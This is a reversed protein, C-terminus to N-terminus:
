NFVGLYFDLIEIEYLWVLWASISLFPGFRIATKRVAKGQWFLIVAWIGGALSAIILTMISGGYGNFTGIVGALKIDGGGMGGGSLIAIGIFIGSFIIAGIVSSKLGITFTSILIGIIIGPYTIFDPIIGEEFDTFATITLIVVFIWGTVMEVSLGWRDYVL